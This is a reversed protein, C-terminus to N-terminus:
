HINKKTNKKGGWKKKEKWTPFRPRRKMNNNKMNAARPTSSKPSRPSHQGASRQAPLLPHARPHAPTESGSKTGCLAVVRVGALPQPPVGGESVEPHGKESEEPYGRPVVPVPYHLYSVWPLRCQRNSSERGAALQDMRNPGPYPRWHDQDRSGLLAIGTTIGHNCAESCEM